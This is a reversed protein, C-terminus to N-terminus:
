VYDYLVTPPPPHTLMADKLHIEAWLAFSLHSMQDYQTWFTVCDINM